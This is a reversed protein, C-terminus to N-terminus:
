AKADGCDGVRAAQHGFQVLHGAQDGHDAQTRRYQHAHRHQRNGQEAVALKGGKLAVGLLIAQGAGQTFRLQAQQAGLDFRMEQEVGQARHLLQGFLRRRARGFQGGVQDGEQAGAQVLHAAVRDRQAIFVLQDIGVQADHLRPEAGAQAKGQRQRRRQRL